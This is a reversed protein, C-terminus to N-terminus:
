ETSIPFQARRDMAKMYTVQKDVQTIRTGMRKLMQREM